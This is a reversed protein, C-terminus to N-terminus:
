KKGKEFVIGELKDELVKVTGNMTLISRIAVKQEDSLLAQHYTNSNTRIIVEFKDLTM